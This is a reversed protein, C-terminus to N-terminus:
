SEQEMLSYYIKILENVNTRSDYTKAIFKTQNQWYSYFKKDLAFKKITQVFNNEGTTYYWGDFTKKYQHLNRLLIPLGAAAAELIVIGFTEHISPLFFLDAAFYYSIAKKHEVVGTFIVNDPHNKIIKSMEMYHSAFEKFPIGGVWIFQYNPLKKACDLFVDVRKRPQVQGNAIIVFKNNDFGLKKRIKYKDKTTHSYQSIDITNPVLYIPKKVRQAKLLDVVEQSVALVADARNYFWRLYIKALPYWYRAAALSGVFSDPVLHASVVKKGRYFLLKKLSYPGVTHIHVIDAPKSSNKYVIINKKRRLSNYTEEFATHVGHGQVTFESESIINVRIKQM